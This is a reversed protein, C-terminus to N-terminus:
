VSSFLEIAFEYEVVAVEDKTSFKDFLEIVFENAVAFAVLKTFFAEPVDLM